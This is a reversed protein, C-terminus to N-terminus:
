PKPIQRPVSLGTQFAELLGTQMQWVAAALAIVVGIATIIITTRTSRQEKSSEDVKAAMATVNANMLKIDGSIEAIRTEIRSEVAEIKADIEERTQESVTEERPALQHSGVTLLVTTPETSSSRAFVPRVVNPSSSVDVKAGPSHTSETPPM